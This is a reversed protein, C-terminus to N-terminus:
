KYRSPPNALSIVSRQYFFSSFAITLVVRVTAPKIVPSFTENFDFGARQNFGKAVLRAKHRQFTGDVNFKYKLVWKCGIPNSGAPPDVLTLTSNNVLADYEQQM